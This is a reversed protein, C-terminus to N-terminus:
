VSGSTMNWHCRYAWWLCRREVGGAPLIEGQQQERHRLEDDHDVGRDHVNGQRRDAPRKVERPGIKRPDDVGVRQGEAAEQQEAASRSPRRRINM